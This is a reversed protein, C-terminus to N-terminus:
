VTSGVNQGLFCEAGIDSPQSLIQLSMKWSVSVTSGSCNMAKALASEWKSDSKGFNAAQMDKMTTWVHNQYRLHDSGLFGGVGVSTYVMNSIGVWYLLAQSVMADVSLSTEGEHEWDKM